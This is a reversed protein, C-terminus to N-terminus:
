PELREGAVRFEALDGFFRQARECAYDLMEAEVGAAVREGEVARKATLLVTMRRWVRKRVASLRGSDRASVSGWRGCGSFAEAHASMQWPRVQRGGMVM